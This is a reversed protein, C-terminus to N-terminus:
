LTMVFDGDRLPRRMGTMWYAIAALGDGVRVLQQCRVTLGGATQGYEVTLRWAGDDVHEVDMDSPVVMSRGDDFLMHRGDVAALQADNFAAADIPLARSMTVTVIPPVTAAFFAM